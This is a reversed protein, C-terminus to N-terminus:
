PVLLGSERALLLMDARVQDYSDNPLLTDFRALTDADMQAMADWRLYDERAFGQPFLAIGNRLGDALDTLGRRDFLRALMESHGGATQEFWAYLSTGEATAAFSDMLILAVQASGMRALSRDADAIDWWGTVCNEWIGRVLIDLRENEDLAEIRAQLSGKLAPDAEILRLAADRARHQGVPWSQRAADLAANLTEDIVNGSADIVRRQSPDADWEPYLGMVKRLIRAEDALGHRDLMPLLHPLLISEPGQTLSWVPDGYASDLHAMLVLWPLDHAAEPLDAARDALVGPWEIAQAFVLQAGLDSAASPDAPDTDPYTVRCAHTVFYDQMELTLAHSLPVPEGRAGRQCIPQLDQARAPLDFFAMLCAALAPLLRRLVM